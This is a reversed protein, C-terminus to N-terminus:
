IVCIALVCYGCLVVVLDGASDWRSAVGGGGLLDGPCEEGGSEDGYDTAEESPMRMEIAAAVAQVVPRDEEGHGNHDRLM